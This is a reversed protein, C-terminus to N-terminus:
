IWCGRRGRLIQPTAYRELLRDGYIDYGETTLNIAYPVANQRIHKLSNKIAERKTM